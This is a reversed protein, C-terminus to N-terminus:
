VTTPPKRATAEGVEDLAADHHQRQDDHREDHEEGAVAAAEILGALVSASTSGENRDRVSPSVNM